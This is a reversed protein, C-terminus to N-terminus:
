LCAAESRPNKPAALEELEDVQLEILKKNIVKFPLETASSQAAAQGGEAEERGDVAVQLFSGFHDIAAKVSGFRFRAAAAEDSVVFLDGLARGEVEREREYYQGYFDRFQPQGLMQHLLPSDGEFLATLCKVHGLYAPRKKSHSGSCYQDRRELIHEIFSFFSPNQSFLYSKLDVDGKLFVTRLFGIISNHLFNNNPFKEFLAFLSENLKSQLLTSGFDDCCQLCVDIIKIYTLLRADFRVLRESASGSRVGALSPMQLLEEQQAEESPAEAGRLQGLARAFARAPNAEDELLTLATTGLLRLTESRSDAKTRSREFAFLLAFLRRSSAMDPSTVAAEHLLPFFESEFINAFMALDECEANLVNVALGSLAAQLEPQDDVENVLGKCIEEFIFRRTPVSRRRLEQLAELEPPAALGTDRLTLVTLLLEQCSRSVVQRLLFGWLWPLDLIAQAFLSPREALLTMTIKHAYGLRTSLTTSDEKSHALQAFLQEFNVLRDNQRASFFDRITPCNVSLLEACLQPYLYNQKRSLFSHNNLANPRPVVM